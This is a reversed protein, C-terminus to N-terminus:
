FGPPHTTSVMGAPESFMGSCKFLICKRLRGVFYLVVDKRCSILLVSDRLIITSISLQDCCVETEGEQRRVKRKRVLEGQLHNIQLFSGSSGITSVPRVARVPRRCPRSLGKVEGASENGFRAGRNISSSSVSLSKYLSDDLSAKGATQLDTHSKVRLSM